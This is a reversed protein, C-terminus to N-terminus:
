PCTEPSISTATCSTYEFARTCKSCVVYEMAALYPWFAVLRIFVESYCFIMYSKLLSIIFGVQNASAGDVSTTFQSASSQGGAPPFLSPQQHQMGFSNSANFPLLPTVGPAPTSVNASPFTAFGSVPAAAPAATGFPLIPTHGVSAVPSNGVPLANVNTVPATIPAGAGSPTGSVQGPVSAPVSLQSFVSELTNLNSSAQSVKVEPAFDFSAWNNDNTSSAPQAASQAVTTQQAQTAAAIAPPEPDADFDILSGTTELKVEAPNENTSGLSSSSATRQM